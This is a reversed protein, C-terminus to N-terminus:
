ARMRNGKAVALVRKGQPHSHLYRENIRILSALAHHLNGKSIQLASQAVYNGYDNKIVDLFNPSHMLEQIIIAANEDGCVRLCKEVVHSGHKDTALTAFHGKLRDLISGIALPMGMGLVHQVVYNWLQHIGGCAGYMIVIDLREKLEGEAQSISTQLVCCGSKDVAVEIWNDAIENVLHKSANAPFNKLCQQIVHHGNQNKSLTVTMHKLVSTLLTRQEPTKISVIMAQMARTGLSHCCINLLQQKKDIFYIVIQTMQDDNCVEFLKLIVHYGFKDVMLEHLEDKLELFIMETHEPKREGLMMELLQYGFQDRAELAMRGKLQEMSVHDSLSIPQVQHDRFPSFLGLNASSASAAPQREPRHFRSNSASFRQPRQLNLGNTVNSFSCARSQSLSGVFDQGGGRSRGSSLFSSPNFQNSRPLQQQGLGRSANTGGGQPSSARSSYTGGFISPQRSQSLRLRSFGTELDDLSTLSPNNVAVGSRFGNNYHYNSNNETWSLYDQSNRTPYFGNNKEPYNPDQHYINNSLSHSHNQYLNPNRYFGSELSSSDPIPSLVTDYFSVPSLSPNQLELTFGQHGYNDLYKPQKKWEM